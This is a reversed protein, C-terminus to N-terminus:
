DPTSLGMLSDYKTKFRLGSGIHGSIPCLWCMVRPGMITTLNEYAGNDYPHSYLQGGKEALWMARVGEHYEITTKNQLILHFHWGLFFGLAMCLPVLILGSILHIIRYSDDVDQQSDVTVSGILLILSYICALVAYFVFVFFIKYNAHGVCNNM